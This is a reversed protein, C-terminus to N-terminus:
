NVNNNSNIETNDKDKSKSIINKLENKRMCSNNLRKQIIKM